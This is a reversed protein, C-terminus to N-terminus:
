AGHYWFLAEPFSDGHLDTLAGFAAGWRGLDVTGTQYDTRVKEHEETWTKATDPSMAQWLPKAELGVSQTERSFRQYLRTLYDKYRAPNKAARAPREPTSRHGRAASLKNGRLYQERSIGSRELRKRYAPSLANWQAVSRRKAAM